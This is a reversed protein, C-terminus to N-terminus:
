RAIMVGVHFQGFRLHLLVHLGFSDIALRNM